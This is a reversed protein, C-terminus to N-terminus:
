RRAPNKKSEAKERAVCYIGGRTMGPMFCRNCSICGSAATEHTMWKKALDPERILPRSLAIFDMGDEAVAKQAIGLSRFGGVCIVPCAVEKKIAQALALNYAEKEPSNIKTRVPGNKGSAATGSSVEVADIGVDSLQKAVRVADEKTWGKDVHDEGNFKILVPFNKGVRTRIKEYIDFLFRSRNELSGGYADTRHNTVPSLFQSVLYGHAGHIQVADFGWAKARQAARAFADTIDEIELISLARPPEPFGGAQIAFPAVPRQGASKSDTQGGAHVLQIAIKGNLEHVAQTLRRFEPAFDDTYIGMKGPLQKGDRRVYTYGSIILGIGGRALDCYYDMLKQTPRGNQECMGEWTASRILRNKLTLPGMSGQEFLQAMFERGANVTQNLTTRGAIQGATKKRTM